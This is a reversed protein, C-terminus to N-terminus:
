RLWLILEGRGFELARGSVTAIKRVELELVEIRGAITADDAASMEEIFSATRGLYLPLLTQTLHERNMVERHYAAAYEYLVHVWLSDPFAPVSESSTALSQVNAFTLPTLIDRLLPALDRVGSM